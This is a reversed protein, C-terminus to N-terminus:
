ISVGLDRCNDIHVCVLAPHHGQPCILTLSKTKNRDEDGSEWFTETSNDTLSGIMAQRSSAKIETSPTLDKLCEIAPTIQNLASQYSEHMSTTFAEMEESRSLIKSINNFVQSRHLFSHDTTAFRLGWCRVAIQQLASGMPLLVMLDAITQLLSHFTSPLPHVAEGAITIDSLPHECVKLDRCMAKRLAQKMSIQLSDLDHQQLIFLLVPRQLLKLDDNNESSINNRVVVSSPNDKTPILKQLATSPNCLLSSGGENAVECSSNNRKRMMIIRGDYGSKSWPIGNTGMSVSRHFRLGKSSDSDNDSISVESFPRQGSTSPSPVFSDHFHHKNLVEDYFPPGDSCLNAGLAQLCQFPPLPGFPGTFDPPSNNESVSPMISMSSRRPNTIGSEASSALDLLFMANNKMIIHPELGTSASPSSLAKIIVNKRRVICKNRLNIQKGGRNTKVYKKVVVKVYYIGPLVGGDGCNGAWGLCYSGGSNYGKGGAHQGCGPHAQHMHYTVPHPFNDGCLECLTEAGSTHNYSSLGIDEALYYIIAKLAS